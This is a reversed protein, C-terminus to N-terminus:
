PATVTMRVAAEFQPLSARLRDLTAQEEIGPLDFKRTNFHARLAEDAAPDEHMALMLEILRSKLPEELDSRLLEVARPLSESEHIIRLEGRLSNPLEDSSAWDVSSMVGVDVISKDVWLATNLNHRAFAYGTCSSAHQLRPHALRCLPMDRGLLELVPYFFASTSGPHEFAITAGTLDKLSEIDSDQPVFFVSRYNPTGNRWARAVIDVRGSSELTLGRFLTESIWDVRGYRLLNLMQEPTETTVIFVDEVGDQVLRKRLYDALPQLRTRAREVDTQIAGIFLVRKEPGGTDGAAHAYSGTLAALLCVGLLLAGRLAARQM